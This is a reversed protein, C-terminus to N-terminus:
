TGSKDRSLHSHQKQGERKARQKHQYSLGARNCFRRFAQESGVVHARKIGDFAKRAKAYAESINDLGEFEPWRLWMYLRLLAADRDVKKSISQVAASFAAEPDLGLTLGRFFALRDAAPQLLAATIEKQAAHLTQKPTVRKLAKTIDTPHAGTNVIRQVHALEDAPMDASVRSCDTGLLLGVSFGQMYTVSNTRANELWASPLLQDALDSGVKRVWAPYRDETLEGLFFAFTESIRVPLFELSEIPRRPTTQKM